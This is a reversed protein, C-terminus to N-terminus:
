RKKAKRKMKKLELSERKKKDKRFLFEQIDWLMRENQEVTEKVSLLDESMNMITVDTEVDILRSPKFPPPNAEFKKRNIERMIKHYDLDAKEKREQEAKAEKEMQEREREREEIEEQTMKRIGVAPDFVYNEDEELKQIKEQEEETSLDIKKVLESRDKKGMEM